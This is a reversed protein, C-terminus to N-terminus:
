VIFLGVVYWSSTRMGAEMTIVTIVAASCRIGARTKSIRLDDYFGTVVVPGTSEYLGSTHRWGCWPPSRLSIYWLMKLHCHPVMTIYGLFVDEMRDSLVATLGVKTVLIRPPTADPKDSRAM